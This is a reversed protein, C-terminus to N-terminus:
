TIGHVATVSRVRDNVDGRSANPKKWDVRRIPPHMHNVWGGWNVLVVHTHHTAGLAMAFLACNKNEIVFDARVLKAEWVSRM